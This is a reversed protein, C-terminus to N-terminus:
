ENKDGNNTNKGLSLIEDDLEGDSYNNEKNKNEFCNNIKDNITALDEKLEYFSVIETNKITDKIDKILNSGYTDTKDRITDELEKKFYSIVLSTEYKIATSMDKKFEDIENRTRDELRNLNFQQYIGLSVLIIFLIAGICWLAYHIYYLDQKYMFAIDKTIDARLNNLYKIKDDESCSSKEKLSKLKEKLDIMNIKFENNSSINTNNQIFNLNLSNIIEELKNIKIKLEYNDCIDNENAYAFLINTFIMFIVLLKFKM